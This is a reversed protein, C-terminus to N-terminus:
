PEPYGVDNSRGDADRRSRSSQFGTKADPDGDYFEKFQGDKFADKLLGLVLSVSDDKM